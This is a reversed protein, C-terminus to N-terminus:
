VLQRQKKYDTYRETITQFMGQLASLKKPFVRNMELKEMTLGGCGLPLIRGVLVPPNAGNNEAISVIMNSYTGSIHDSWDWIVTVQNSYNLGEHANSNFLLSMDRSRDEFEYCFDGVSAPMKMVQCAAKMFQVLKSQGPFSKLSRLLSDPHRPKTKEILKAYERAQGTSYELATKSIEEQRRKTTEETIGTEDYVKKLKEPGAKLMEDLSEKYAALEFEAEVFPYDFWVPLGCYGIFSRLFVIFFDHLRKNKLKLDNVLHKIEFFHWYTSPWNCPRYMSFHFGERRAKKNYHGDINVDFGDPCINKKFLELLEAVAAASRYKSKDIVLKDAGVLQAGHNYAQILDKYLHVEQPDREDESVQDHLEAWTKPKITLAFASNAIVRTDSAPIGPGSTRGDRKQKKRRSSTHARSKRAARRHKVKPM